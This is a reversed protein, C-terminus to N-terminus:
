MLKELEAMFQDFSESRLVNHRALDNEMLHSLLRSIEKHLFLHGQKLNILWIMKVQKGQWEIPKDLITVGISNKYGNLKIPHPGAIGKDYITSFKMERELVYDTFKESAVKSQIMEKSQQKIITLYNTESTRQFYDESFLSRLSLMRRNMTEESFHFAITDVIRKIETEDLFNKIPIIPVDEVEINMAGTTLIVDPLDEEIKLAKKNSLAIVFAESFVRELKMRIINASGGGTSCVVVIRKVKGLTNNKEREIHAALHLAIYAIEDRTLTYGYMQEFLEGFRFAVVLVNTYKLKMEDILPNDLQLNYYLRDLLPYIHLLLGERLEVDRSFTTQFEDDLQELIRRLNKLLDEKKQPDIENSRSKASIHASLFQIEQEPIDLDYKEKIWNVLTKAVIYYTKEVGKIVVERSKILNNQKVRFLVIKLHTLLNEFVVESTELQHVTLLSRFYEELSKTDISELFKKYAKTPKIYFKSQLVYRSFARRLEREEGIVKVGYHPRKEIALHFESLKEEVIKLDKSITSRSVLISDMLEEITVYNDSQLIYFLLAEARQDVNNLDIKEDLQSRYREFVKYDEVNLSYGRGREILISFGNKGDNIEKILKRITSESLNMAHSLEDLSVPSITEYLLDVLIKERM